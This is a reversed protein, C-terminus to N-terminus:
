NIYKFLFNRYGMHSCEELLRPILNIWYEVDLHSRTETWGGWDRLGLRIAMSPDFHKRTMELLVKEVPLSIKRPLWKEFYTKTYYNQDGGKKGRIEVSETTTGFKELVGEVQVFYLCTPMEANAENELGEISLDLNRLATTESRLCGCSKTIGGKLLATALTIETKCNCICKWHGMRQPSSRDNREAETFHSFGQVTLRGFIQGTIDEWKAEEAKVRGCKPCACGRLRSDPVQPFEGHLPCVILVKERATKYIVKSYDYKDGHMMFAKALFKDFREKLTKLHMLEKACKPCKSKLSIHHYGSVFDGHKPCTIVLKEGQRKYVTKSYDYYDGHIERSREIFIKTDIKDKIGMSRNLAETEGLFM